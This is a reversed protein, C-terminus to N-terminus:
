INMDIASKVGSLVLEPVIEDFLKYDAFIKSFGGTGIVYVKEGDFNSKQYQYCIEKISGATGYYLGSQIAEITNTGCSHVPKAIEVSPLKATGNALANVSIKLGPMITGGLFEKNKTVLELTTATGMDVIILNTDPHLAVAGMAAAILDAGIEKPNPYKLKLGTKIGAQIFLPDHGLYKTCAAAWSYNVAPVVSCCGIKKVSKWDFGNERLADRLFLGIEDSTSNINTACRVQLVIKDGDFLGCNTVTNGIDISLVM